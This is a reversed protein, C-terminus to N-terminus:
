TRVGPEDGPSLHNLKSFVDGANYFATGPFHPHLEEWDHKDEELMVPVKRKM